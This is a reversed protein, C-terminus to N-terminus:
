DGLGVEGEGVGRLGERGKGGGEILGEREGGEILEERELGLMDRLSRTM